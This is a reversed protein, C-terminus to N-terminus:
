TCRSQNCYGRKTKTKLDEARKKKIMEIQKQGAKMDIGVNAVQAGLKYLRGTSNM